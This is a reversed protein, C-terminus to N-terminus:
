TLTLTFVLQEFGITCTESNLNQNQNLLRCVGQSSLLYNFGIRDPEGLFIFHHKHAPVKYPV